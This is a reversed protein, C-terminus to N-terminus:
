PKEEISKDELDMADIYRMLKGCKTCACLLSGDDRFDHKDCYNDIMAKLKDQLCIAAQDTYELRDQLNCVWSCCMIYLNLLEEKTFDNM